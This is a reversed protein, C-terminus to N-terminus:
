VGGGIKDHAQLYDGLVAHLQRASPLIKARERHDIRGDTLAEALENILDATHANLAFECGRGQGSVRAAGDLGAVRLIRNAFNPGLLAMYRLAKSLCPSADGLVHARVTREDIGTLESAKAYSYQKGLGLHERLADAQIELCLISTITHPNTM